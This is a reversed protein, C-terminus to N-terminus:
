IHNNLRITMGERTIVGNLELEMLEQNVQSAGLGSKQILGEIGRNGSKLLDILLQGNSDITVKKSEVAISEHIGSTKNIVGPSVRITDAIKNQQPRLGEVIDAGSIVPIAGQALLRNCGVYSLDYSHGPCAYVERNQELAYNATILAGSKEGAEVVVTALALGSIIRNRRVFTWRDGRIGPPYESLLQATSSRSMGRYLDANAYPYLIDLGNALVGVTVGNELAATHARRDVGLAMGSVIGYGSEVLEHVLRETIELGRPTSKRTGVVAILPLPQIERSLYIVMPPSKIERLMSPYQEDWMTLISYGRSRCVAVISRACEWPEAPFRSTLHNQLQPKGQCIIKQWHTLPSTEYYIEDRKGRSEATLVSLAIASLREDESLKM